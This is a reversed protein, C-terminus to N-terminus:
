PRLQCLPPATPGRAQPRGAHLGGRVVAQRPQRGRRVAAPQAGLLPTPSRRRCQWCHGAHVRPLDCCVRRQELPAAHGVQVSPRVPPHTSPRISWRDDCWTVSLSAHAVQIWRAQIASALCQWGPLGHLQLAVSVASPIVSPTRAKAGVHWLDSSAILLSVAIQAFASAAMREGECSVHDPTCPRWPHLLRGLPRQGHWAPVQQYRGDLQGPGALAMCQCGAGEPAAHIAGHLSSYRAGAVFVSISMSLWKLLLFTPPRLKNSFLNEHMRQSAAM